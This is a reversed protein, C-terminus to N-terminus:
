LLKPFPTLIHQEYKNKMWNYGFSLVSIQRTYIPRAQFNFGIALTTRPQYENTFNRLKIPSLFKPFFLSADFGFEKTNFLSTNGENDLVSQAQTGAKLTINFIESGKFINKNRYTFSGLM